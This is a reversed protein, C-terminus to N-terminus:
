KRRYSSEIGEDSSSSDVVAIDFTDDGSGDYNVIEGKIWTFTKKDERIYYKGSEYVIESIYIDNIIGENIRIRNGEENLKESKKCIWEGNLSLMYDFKSNDLLGSINYEDSFQKITRYDEYLNHEKGDEFNNISYVSACINHLPNDYDHLDTDHFYNSAKDYEGNIILKKLMDYFGDKCEKRKQEFGNEDGTITTYYRKQSLSYENEYVQYREDNNHFHRFNIYKIVESDIEDQINDYMDWAAQFEGINVLNNAERIKSKRYLFNVLNPNAKICVFVIPSMIVVLILIITLRIKRKKLYIEKRKEEQVREEEKE